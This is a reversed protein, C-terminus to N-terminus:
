LQAMQWHFFNNFLFIIQMSEFGLTKEKNPLHSLWERNLIQCNHISRDIGTGFLLQTRGIVESPIFFHSKLNM